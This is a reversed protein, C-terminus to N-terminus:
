ALRGIRTVHYNVRFMFGDTDRVALRCRLEAQFGNTGPGDFETVTVNDVAWGANNATGANMISSMSVVPVTGRVFDWGPGVRLILDQRNWNAEGKMAFRAYGSFVVLDLGDGTTTRLEHQSEFSEPFIDAM